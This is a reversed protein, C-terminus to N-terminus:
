YMFLNAFSCECSQSPQEALKSEFMTHDALAVPRLSKLDIKM